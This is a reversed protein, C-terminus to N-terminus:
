VGGGGGAATAKGKSPNAARPDAEGGHPMNELHEQRTSKSRDFSVGIKVAIDELDRVVALTLPVGEKGRIGEFEREPDGPILVPQKPDVPKTEKFRRVWKDMEAGFEERPRFSNVDFAMFFHGIGKGVTDREQGADVGDRLAFPPAYPGWNAGSLVATMIDVWSSLCYGKHAGRTRDSGLMLLAGGDKMEAPDNTSRGDKGICWGTPVSKGLRHNIEVKGYAVCSTAMDMVYDAEGKCPVAVAIPNTGLMREAGFCPAVLKTTNTMSLGILGQKSAEMSYWGAIGYHNTNRVTVAAVGHERALRIAIDNAAPGVILGLGNGGDVVCAGGNQTVIKVDPNPEIAKAELLEFYAHLRAVGHSDIGRLDASALM